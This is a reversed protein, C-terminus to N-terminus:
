INVTRWPHLQDPSLIFREVGKRDVDVNGQLSLNKAELQRWPVPRVESWLCLIASFVKLLKPRNDQGYDKVESGWNTVQLHFAHLSFCFSCYIIKLIDEIISKSNQPKRWGEKNSSSKNMWCFSHIDSIHRGTRPVPSLTTFFFLLKWGRYSSITQLSNYTLLYWM